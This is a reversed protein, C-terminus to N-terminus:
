RLSWEYANPDPVFANPAFGHLRTRYAYVYTPNFLYVIPVDRAVIRDIAVYAARRLARDPQAVAERELREVEPDCYRMYNKLADRCGYLFADDPDPGMFWPVYALDFRGAALVGGDKAPLFLQANSIFKITLDIGRDHLERQVLTAAGRGTASEPFQVYTLALPRGEKRRMGDSGRRWGAADLAADAAAPDYGPERVSADYAWSFRPRDSDAVPYRGLTVKTSIAERDISQALARRVRADDLPPHTLNLAIGAVIATPVYAYALGSAKALAAQQAPAILNFDIAGSQLLTLNTGPDPVIGVDLRDVKPRGRWYTLNAAYVLRDGRGWSVFNFPGDGVGPAGNFAARELPQEKALVHEPLVYQASTGYTFFTAVAPAWARSLRFRVTFDDPADAREILDYGERSAVPNAPDRLARLTFLVDRATVPVGDSWDVGRRLHYVLTRGDASVGGNAVSPVELALAPLPRGRADLDFFPEFSLRALQGEVGAADVHLFLPNLSAPDASVDFRAVSGESGSPACAALM